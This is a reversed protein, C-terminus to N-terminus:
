KPQAAIDKNAAEEAERLASNVDTEGNIVKKVADNVRVTVLADYKTPTFPPAFASKFVAKINKGEMSKMNKGYLAKINEDKLSTFRGSATTKKQVEEGTVVQIAQFAAEKKKSLSSVLLFHGSSALSTNPRDAHSPFQTVDWNFQNPTGHLKELAAFRADYSAVMALTQDKLFHDLVAGKNGPVDNVSQILQMVRKWGDTTIEAKNTTKNVYPLSLQTTLDGAGPIAGLGRYQVGEMVRGFSKSLGIVQDWTMGEKPYGVGFRDFLDKNYFTALFNLSFPIAFLHDSEGYVLSTQMAAPDFKGTDMNYKKILDNLDYAAGLEKFVKISPYVTLIFDPFDGSAIMSGLGDKGKTNRLMTVTIHPYKAHVPGAIFNEFEEDTITAGDQLMVLQVPEPPKEEPKVPSAGGGGGGSGCATEFLLAFGALIAASKKFLVM